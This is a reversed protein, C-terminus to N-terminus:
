KEEYSAEEVDDDKKAKKDENKSADANAETQNAKAAEEYAKTALKM